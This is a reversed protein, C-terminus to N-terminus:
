NFAPCGGAPLRVIRRMGTQNLLFIIPIFVYTGAICCSNSTPWVTGIKGCHGLSAVSRQVFIHIQSMEDEPRILFPEDVLGSM